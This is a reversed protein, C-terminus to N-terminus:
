FHYTLVKNTVSNSSNTQVSLADAIVSNIDATSNTTQLQNNSHLSMGRNHYKICRSWRQAHLTGFAVHRAATGGGATYQWALQSSFQESTGAYANPQHHIGKCIWMRIQCPSKYHSFGHESHLTINSIKTLLANLPRIILNHFITAKVWAKKTLFIFATSRQIWSTQTM